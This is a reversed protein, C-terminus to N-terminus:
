GAAYSATVAALSAELSLRPAHRDFWVATSDRMAPGAEYIRLIAAALDEPSASPAIVGNVGDEVLETAANDVGAVVVSPVGRSAAEVVILGYGERKSPLVMCLASRLSEAVRESSVFGPVDVAERVGLEAVCREVETREPGDGFIVCRLDPVRQRALGFAPVLAPVRKEPIHRGAFVVVPEAPHPDAATVPGDYIGELVHVESRIGEETLRQAHLRSFCFAHQEVSVCLRQVGHGIAGGIPGLYEDWYGRTWVEFWDVVLRARHLPRTLAAALLSFYPFSATHIADYRRGHLILHALTGLGFVLPPLIRRRGAPTYLSMRPGAAVVEVGPLEPREGREWQRLTVYTVDHGEAALQTALARYWREAGGVTLPFLCDYVLCVRM